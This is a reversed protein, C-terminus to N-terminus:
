LWRIVVLHLCKQLFLGNKQSKGPLKMQRRSKAKQTLTQKAVLEIQLTEGTCQKIIKEALCTMPGKKFNAPDNSPYNLEGQDTKGEGSVLVKIM